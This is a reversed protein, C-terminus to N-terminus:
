MKSNDIINKEEVIAITIKNFKMKELILVGNRSSLLAAPECVGPVGVMKQVFDSNNIGLDAKNIEERDIFDIELSKEAAYEFLGMEDKKLDITALKKISNEKLELVQLSEEVAHNIEVASIGRRCGIGIIINRPILQLYNGEIEIVKNSIVVPFGTNKETSIKSLPYISFFDTERLELNYDTFIHLPRDNVIAGNALKLNAFPEIACGMKKALMDIAPKGQCDTATTIVPNSHLIGAIRETLRNAGGLHGSLTSIVNRGTEDITVVAPDDRKSRLYPAIIRVVIGLAAIYVINQYDKFLSATLERLKSDYYYIKYHIKEEQINTKQIEDLQRKLKLPTYIDVQGISKRIELALEQGGRTLTVVAIKEAELM